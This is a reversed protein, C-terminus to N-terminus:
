RSFSQCAMLLMRVSKTIKNNPYSQIFQQLKTVVLPMIQPIHERTLANTQDLNMLAEELYKVKLETHTNLDTSLQQILSMLVPQQLVCPKTEFLQNPSVSECLQVLLSLDAACLATQFADNYSGKQLYALMRQKSEQNGFTPTPASAIYAGMNAPTMAGSQRIFSIMRDTLHAQQERMSVTLEEKIIAKVSSIITDQLIANSSRINQDIQVQVTHALNSSLLSLNNQINDNISKLQNILPERQEDFLKKQNVSFNNFEQLYDDTGKKFASNIQAFMTQCSKEFSPVVIKQFTDRYSSIMASQISQSVAQSISDLITKSKFLKSIQDKIFSETAKLKEAIEHPIQEKFPEICKSMHAQINTRIEDKLAKEM